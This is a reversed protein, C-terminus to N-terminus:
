ISFKLHALGMSIIRNCRSVLAFSFDLLLATSDVFLQLRIIQLLLESNNPADASWFLRHQRFYAFLFDIVIRTLQVFYTAFAITWSISNSLPLVFFTLNSSM